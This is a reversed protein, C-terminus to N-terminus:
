SDRGLDLWAPSRLFLWVLGSFLVNVGVALATKVAGGVGPLVQLQVIYSHHHDRM